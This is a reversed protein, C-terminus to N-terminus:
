KNISPWKAYALYYLAIVNVVPILLLFCMAPHFGARSFVRSMPFIFAFFLVIITLIQTISIGGM